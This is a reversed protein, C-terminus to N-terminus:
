GTTSQCRLIILCAFSKTKILENNWINSITLSLHHVYHFIGKPHSIESEQGIFGLHSLDTCVESLGLNPYFKYLYPFCESSRFFIENENEENFIFKVHKYELDGTEQVAM